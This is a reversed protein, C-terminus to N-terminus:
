QALIPRLETLCWDFARPGTVDAPLQWSINDIGKGLPIQAQPPADWCYQTMDTFLADNVAGSAPTLQKCFVSAELSRDYGDPLAKFRIIDITPGEIVFSFGIVKGPSWAAAAPSSPAASSADANVAADVSADKGADAAADPAISPGAGTNPPTDSTAADLPTLNFGLEVGWYEGYDGNPVSALNGQVCIKGADTGVTISTGLASRSLFGSGALGYANPALVYPLDGTGPLFELRDGRTLAPNGPAVPAAEPTAAAAPASVPLPMAGAPGVGGSGAMAMTGQLDPRQTTTSKNSCAVLLAAGWTVSAYSAGRRIRM